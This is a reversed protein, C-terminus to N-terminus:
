VQAPSFQPKNTFSPLESSYLPAPPNWLLYWYLLAYFPQVVSICTAIVPGTTSCVPTRSSGDNLDECDGGFSAQAVESWVILATDHFTITLGLLLYKSWNPWCSRNNVSFVSLVFLILLCILSLLDFFIFLGGALELDTFM